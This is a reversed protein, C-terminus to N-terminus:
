YIVYIDIICKIIIKITLLFYYNNGCNGIFGRDPNVPEIKIYGSCSNEILSLLVLFYLGM